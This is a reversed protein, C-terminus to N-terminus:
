ASSQNHCVGLPDYHSVFDQLIFRSATKHKIRALILFNEGTESFVVILYTNAIHMHIAIGKLKRLNHFCCYTVKQFYNQSVKIEDEFINSLLFILRLKTQHGDFGRAIRHLINTITLEHVNRPRRGIPPRTRPVASQLIALIANHM